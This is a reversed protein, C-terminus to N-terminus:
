DNDEKSELFLSNPTQEYSHIAGPSKACDSHVTHAAVKYDVDQPKDRVHM